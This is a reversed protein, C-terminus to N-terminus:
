KRLSVSKKLALFCSELTKKLDFLNSLLSNEVETKQEASGLSRSLAPATKTQIALSRPLLLHRPPRPPPKTPSFHLSDPHKPLSHKTFFPRNMFIGLNQKASFVHIVLFKNYLKQKSFPNSAQVDLLNCFLSLFPLVDDQFTLM